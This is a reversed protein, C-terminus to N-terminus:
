LTVGKLKDVIEKAAAKTKCKVEYLNPSIAPEESTSIGYKWGELALDHHEHSHHPNIYHMFAKM